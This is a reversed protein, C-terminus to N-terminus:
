FSDKVGSLHYYVCFRRISNASLAGKIKTHILTLRKTLFGRLVAERYFLHVFLGIGSYMRKM